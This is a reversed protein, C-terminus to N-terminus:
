INHGKLMSSLRVPCKLFFLVVNACLLGEMILIIIM